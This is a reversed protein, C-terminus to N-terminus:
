LLQPFFEFAVQWQRQWTAIHRAARMINPVKNAALLLNDLLSVPM